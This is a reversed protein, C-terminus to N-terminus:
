PVFDAVYLGTEFGEQGRGVPAEDEGVVEDGAEGGPEQVQPQPRLQPQEPVWYSAGAFCDFLECGKVLHTFINKLYKIVNNIWSNERINGSLQSTRQTSLGSRLSVSMSM